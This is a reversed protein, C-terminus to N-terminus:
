RRARDGPLAAAAATLWVPKQVAVPEIERCPRGDVLPGRITSNPHFGAIEALFNAHELAINWVFRAHSCQAVLLDKRGLRSV